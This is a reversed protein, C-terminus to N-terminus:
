IDLGTARLRCALDGSHWARFGAVQDHFGLALKDLNAEDACIICDALASQFDGLLAFQWKVVWKEAPTWLDSQLIQGLIASSAAYAQCGTRLCGISEPGDTHEAAAAGCLCPPQSDRSALVQDVERAISHQRRSYASPRSM